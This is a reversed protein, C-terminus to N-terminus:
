GTMLFSVSFNKLFLRTFAFIIRVTKLATSKSLLNNKPGGCRTMPLSLFYVSFVNELNDLVLQKSVKFNKSTEVIYFLVIVTNDGKPTKWTM